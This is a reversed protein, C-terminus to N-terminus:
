CALKKNGSSYRERLDYVNVHFFVYVYFMGYSLHPNSRVVSKKNAHVSKVINHSNMVFHPSIATNTQTNRGVHFAFIVRFARVRVFLPM